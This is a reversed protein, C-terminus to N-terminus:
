KYLIGDLVITSNLQNIGQLKEVISEFLSIVNILRPHPRIGAVKFLRALPFSVFFLTSCKELTFGMNHLSMKLFNPIFQKEGKTHAETPFFKRGIASLPNLSNPEFFIFKSRNKLVRRIEKCSRELNLHHLIAVGIVFDFISEKFPLREADCAIFEAERCVHKARRLLNVNVDIGVVEFGSRKLLVSLWGAGCGYDLILAPKCSKVGNLIIELEKRRVISWFLSKEYVDIEGVEDVGVASYKEIEDAIKGRNM